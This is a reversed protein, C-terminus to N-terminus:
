SEFAIILYAKFDAWLIPIVFTKSANRPLALSHPAHFVAPVSINFNSGFRERANGSITNAVEGVLDLCNEESLDHDGQSEILRNLLLRSATFFVYGRQNGTVAIVGTFDLMVDGAGKLFPSDVFPAQGATQKFYRVAGQVFAQLEQENM